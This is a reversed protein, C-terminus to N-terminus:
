PKPNPLSGLAGPFSLRHRCWDRQRHAMGASDANAIRQGWFANTVVGEQQGGMPWGQDGDAQWLLKRTNAGLPAEGRRGQGM